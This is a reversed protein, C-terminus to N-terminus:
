AVVLTGQMTPHLDCVFTYTGPQTPAVFAVSAGPDILGSAFEGGVATVTHQMADNNTVTVTAGPAVTLPSFGFDAITMVAPAAAATAGAPTAAAPVPAAATQRPSDDAFLLAGATFSAAALLVVLSGTIRQM